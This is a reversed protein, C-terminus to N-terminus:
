HEVLSSVGNNGSFLSKDAGTVDGDMNYDSPLYTGFIGNEISFKAKDQGDIDRFIGDSLQDNDGVYLGWVGPSFMKQGFGGNANWSDQTRFDHTYSSGMLPVPTPSMAALHNRHEVVVHMVSPIYTSFIVPRTFVIKGNTLVLGAEQHVTSAATPDTRFSVLVWDVVANGGNAAKISLYDADTFTSGEDGNYNWPALDYPQGAPTPTFSVSSPTQGPLIKINESLGTHMATGTHAGELWVHLTPQMEFLFTNAAGPTGFGSGSTWPADDDNDLIHDFLALSPGYGDPLTDWPMKDNYKVYDVECGATNLLRLRDGSNRLRFGLNGVYNSVSPFGATFTTQDEVVVLYGNAPISQSSSFTYVSDMGQLVWGNLSVATTGPNYIEVWDGPNFTSLSNYNIENIILQPTGPTCANATTQSNPMGPTGRLPKSAKWSSGLTPDLNIDTLELSTGCGDPDDPWSGRDKYRVSAVVCGNPTLLRIRERDNNLGFNWNGIYSSVGTYVSTFAAADEVLVLRGGSPLISGSGIIFENNDDQFRYGSIDVFGSENNIIEIWNGPNTGAANYFIETIRIDLESGNCPDITSVSNGAGPTGNPDISAAWSSGNNNDLWCGKLELSTGNGDPDLPWNLTDLYRVSDVLGQGSNRLIISEGGNNLKGVYTGLPSFGYKAQFGALNSAVVVCTGSNIFTGGPFLYSIGGVITYYQASVPGPAGNCIEVYEVEGASFTDVGPSNYMIENIFLGNPCQAQLSFLSFCCGLTVLTAVLISKGKKM